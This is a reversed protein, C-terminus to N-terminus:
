PRSRCCMFGHNPHQRGGAHPDAFGKLEVAAVDSFGVRCAPSSGAATM